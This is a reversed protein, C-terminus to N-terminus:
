TRAKNKSNNRKRKKTGNSKSEKNYYKQTVSGLVGRCGHPITNKFQILMDIDSERWYRTQRAGSQIFDPLMLAYENKPNENRFQYWNQITKPSVDVLLSVETVKLLREEM